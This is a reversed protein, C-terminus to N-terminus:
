EHNETGPVRAILSKNRDVILKDVLWPAWYNLHAAIKDKPAGLDLKEKNREMATYIARAVVAPNTDKRHVPYQHDGLRKGRDLNQWYSSQFGCPEVYLTRVPSQSLEARLSEHMAKLASKSAYYSSMAPFSHYMAASMINAVYGHKKQLMHPVACQVLAVASLMNVRYNREFVEIPTDIVFGVANYGANNILVDPTSEAEDVLQKFMSPINEVDALDHVATFAQAGKDRCMDATADLTESTKATLLLTAGHSAAEVALARGLGSSAGTIFFTRNDLKM